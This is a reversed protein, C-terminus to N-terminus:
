IRNKFFNRIKNLVKRFWTAETIELGLEQQPDSTEIGNVVDERKIFNATQFINTFDQKPPNNFKHVALQANKEEETECWYKLNILALLPLTKSTFNNEKFAIGFDLKFEYGQLKNKEMQNLLKIPIKQKYIPDMHNLIELVEAYAMKLENKM